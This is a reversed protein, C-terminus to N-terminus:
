KKEDIEEWCEKEDNWIKNYLKKQCFALWLQEMSSYHKIPQEKSVEEPKYCWSHFELHLDELSQPVYKETDNRMRIEQLQDQRPLWIVDVFDPIEKLKKRLHECDIKGNYVWWEGVRFSIGYIPEQQLICGQLGGTNGDEKWIVACTDGIEKNWLKQIEKAERCMKIYKENTDV